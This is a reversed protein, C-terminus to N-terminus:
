RPLTGSLDSASTSIISLTHSSIWVLYPSINVSFSRGTSFCYTAAALGIGFGEFSQRISLRKSRYLMKYLSSLGTHRSFTHKTSPLIEAPNFAELSMGDAVGMKAVHPERDESAISSTFAIESIV